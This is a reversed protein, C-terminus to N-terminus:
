FLRSLNNMVGRAEAVTRDILESVSPIDKIRGIVQGVPYLGKEVDGDEWGCRSVEGKIMPILEELSAKRREMELVKDAWPNRLVRAPNSLSMMVLATDTESAKIIQEKIRENVPCERTNIFRTGMIVGSAGLALAAMMSRGDGIGGGAILPASIADVAEPILVMSTICEMGPHGGCETGVITILDVGLKDAKAADRVRACKHIHILGADKIQKRFPEPNRGATEVIKVGAEIVTDIVQEPPRPTLAPFLSVNVGFPKDTLDRTKRIESLLKEKDPFTAAALCAFGGANAVAAVLEAKSLWQMTGCQIPYEVGLLRTM